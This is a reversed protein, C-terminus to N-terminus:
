INSCHIYLDKNIQTAVSLQQALLTLQGDVNDETIWRLGGGSPNCLLIEMCRIGAKYAGLAPDSPCCGLSLMLCKKHPM